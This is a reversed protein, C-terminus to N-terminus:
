LIKEALGTGLAGAFPGAFAGALGGVVGGVGTKQGKMQAKLLALQYAYARKQALYQNLWNAYGGTIQGQARKYIDSALMSRLRLPAGSDALPSGAFSGTIRDLGQTFEPGLQAYAARELAKRYVDGERNMQADAFNQFGQLRNTYRNLYAM